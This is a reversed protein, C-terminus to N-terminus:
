ERHFRVSQAFLSAFGVHLLERSRKARRSSAILEEGGPILHLGETDCEQIKKNAASCKQADCMEM